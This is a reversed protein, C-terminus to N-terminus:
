KGGAQVSKASNRLHKPTASCPPLPSAAEAERVCLGKGLGGAALVTAASGLGRSAYHANASEAPHRLERGRTKERCALDHRDSPLTRPRNSADADAATRRMRRRRMDRSPARPIPLALRFPFTGSEALSSACGCPTEAWCPWHPSQLQGVEFSRIPESPDV